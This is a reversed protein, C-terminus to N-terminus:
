IGSDTFLHIQKIGILNRLRKDFRPEGVAYVVKSTLSSEVYDGERPIWNYKNPLLFDTLNFPSTYKIRFPLNNAKALAYLSIIGIFRDTMGGTYLRGDVVAVLTKNYSIRLRPYWYHTYLWGKLIHSVSIAAEKIIEVM